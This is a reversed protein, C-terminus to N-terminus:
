SASTGAREEGDDQAEAQASSLPDAAIPLGPQRRDAEEDDDGRQEEEAPAALRDPHDAAIAAVLAPRADVQGGRRERAEDTIVAIMPAQPQSHACPRSPVGNTCSPAIAPSAYM